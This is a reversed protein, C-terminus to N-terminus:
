KERFARILAVPLNVVALVIATPILLVIALAVLGSQVLSCQLESNNMEDTEPRVARAFDSALAGVSDDASTSQNGGVLALLVQGFLALIQYCNM